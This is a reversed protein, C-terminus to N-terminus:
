FGTINNQKIYDQLLGAIDDLSNNGEITYDNESMERHSNLLDFAAYLVTKVDVESTKSTSRCCIDAGEKSIHPTHCHNCVYGETIHLDCCHRADFEDKYPYNCTPCHYLYMKSTAAEWQEKTVRDDFRCRHHYRMTHRPIMRQDSGFYILLNVDSPWAHTAGEPWEKLEKVLIDLLKM